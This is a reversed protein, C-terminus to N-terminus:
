IALKVALMKNKHVRDCWTSLFLKFICKFQSLLFSTVSSIKREPTIYQFDQIKFIIPDQPQLINVESWSSLTTLYQSLASGPNDDLSDVRFEPPPYFPLLDKMLPTFLSLSILSCWLALSHLTQTGPLPECHQKYYIFAPLILFSQIQPKFFHIGWNIRPQM